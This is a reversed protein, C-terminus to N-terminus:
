KDGVFVLSYGAAMHKEVIPTTEYWPYIDFDVPKRSMLDVVICGKYAANVYLKKPEAYLNFVWLGDEILWQKLEAMTRWIRPPTQERDSHVFGDQGAFLRHRPHYIVYGSIQPVPIVIDSTM